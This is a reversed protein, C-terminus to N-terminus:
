LWRRVRGRYAEYTAGFKRGLYAEERAIVGANILGVFLPGMVLFWLSNVWFGGGVILLLMSLYIPNRSFRYPGTSVVATSPRNTPVNTGSRLLTAVSWWFLAFSLGLLTWGVPRAVPAPVFPLPSVRYLVGAALVLGVVLFPPHFAVGANDQDSTM